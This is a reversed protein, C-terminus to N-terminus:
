GLYKLSVRNVFLSIYRDVLTAAKPPRVLIWLIASVNPMNITSFFVRPFGFTGNRLSGGDEQVEEPCAAQSDGLPGQQRQQDSVAAGAEFRADHVREIQNRLRNNRSRGRARGAESNWEVHDGVALTRRV